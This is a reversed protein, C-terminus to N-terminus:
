HELVAFREIRGIESCPFPEMGSAQASEILRVELGNRDQLVLTQPQRGGTWQLHYQLVERIETAYPNPFCAIKLEAIGGGTLQVTPLERWSSPRACSATSVLSGFGVTAISLTMLYVSAAVVALLAFRKRGSVPKQQPSKDSTTAAKQGPVVAVGSIDDGCAPCLKRDKAVVAECFPCRMTDNKQTMQTTLERNCHKCVIAADQIEEACFPCTKM